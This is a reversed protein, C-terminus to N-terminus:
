VSFQVDQPSTFKGKIKCKSQHKSRFTGAQETFQIELALNNWVGEVRWLGHSTFAVGRSGSGTAFHVFPCSSKQHLEFGNGSELDIHKRAAVTGVFVRHWTNRV